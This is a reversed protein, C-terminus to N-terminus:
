KIRVTEIKENMPYERIGIREMKIYKMEVREQGVATAM